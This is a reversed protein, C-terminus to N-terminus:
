KSAILINGHIRTWGESELTRTDADDRVLSASKNGPTTSATVIVDTAGMDSCGSFWQPDAGPPVIIICGESSDPSSAVFYQVQEHTTLLRLSERDFTDPLDIGTPLVDSPTSQRELAQVGTHGSCASLPLITGICIAVAFIRRISM